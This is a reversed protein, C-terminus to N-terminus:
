ARAGHAEATRRAATFRALADRWSPMPEGTTAVARASSLDSAPPRAARRGVAVSPVRELAAGELGAADLVARGFDAWSLSGENAVHFLGCAGRALLLRIARALDPAYTVGTTVDDAVRLARGAVASALISEPFCEEGAAFLGQSRVLLHRVAARVRREGALKSRGYANVPRPLDGEDYPEGKRGDFVYDTSVHVVVAGVENAAAVVHGVGVDNVALAAEPEDEARDVATYGAANVVVDPRFSAVEAAVASADTVDLRERPLSRLEFSGALEATLARGLLGGSGTLLLRRV